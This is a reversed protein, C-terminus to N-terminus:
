AMRPLTPPERVAADLVDRLAGCAEGVATENDPASSDFLGSAVHELFLLALRATLLSHLDDAPRGRWTAIAHALQDREREGEALLRSQLAPSEDVLSSLMRIRDMDPRPTTLIAVLAHGLAIDLPEDAPRSLLAEAMQGRLALPGIVFEDKSPFYRYLTSTGVEAREAIEEMRTADYGREAFLAYAADLIVERTHAANRERLGM